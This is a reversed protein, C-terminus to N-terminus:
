KFRSRPGPRAGSFQHFDPTFRNNFFLHFTHTEIAYLDTGAVQLNERYIQTSTPNSQENKFGATKRKTGLATLRKLFDKSPMGCKLKSGVIVEDYLGGRKEELKSLLM